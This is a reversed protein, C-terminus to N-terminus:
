VMTGETENFSSRVCLHVDFKKALEVCRSHLVRAGLRAMELMEDHTIQNHKRANPVVRPDATYVGEVDTYIDCRDAELTAAIAVATTDSAGRGSPRLRTIM